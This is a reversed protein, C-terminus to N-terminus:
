FRARATAYFQRGPEPFGEALSYNQDLLNTVGIAASFNETFDYDARINLLAYSGINVYNPKTSNTDAPGDGFAKNCNGHNAAPGSPTAGSSTNTIILTSTCSTIMAVRDTALELSPTLTLKDTAKWALYFFAKHKPLGEMQTLAVSDRINAATGAPLDAAVGVFDLDRDIYTYNGGIRLTRTVEWDASVEAGYYHGDPSVGIISANGNGYFANQISDEIDSYFIASSARLGPFVTDSIGIEYNTSREPAVNPDPAPRADFRTSYREFLTPFRTRSSIDAHATGTRSYRYIAAAQWNWADVEPTVPNSVITGGSLSEARLVENTDYSVGAVFDLNHTAHFTNEIAFSWTEESSTETPAKQSSPPSVTYNYNIDWEKHVDRRYHIAGKLTNMPILSTGMEVFGGVSDDSYPSDTPLNACTPNTCFSVTNDFTNYYANTKIYSKEGLQTKSLWSLSSIDWAPWKWYRPNGSFYGQVIQRDVHLPANKEGAQKTYNISYEDTANPTIGAKVNIRWDSFDSRDRNGGDEYPFGPDHGNIGTVSYPSPRFDSSMDFHDQDVITGSVQAYYGKQRTGTYGYASWQGMSGLDGDFVSGVRADLEYEKTPKRSVMNIAGGMGGPGNLVSVYGKAVQVEALDPTLFRNMDIRNDAPLYVRVGDMSLPVQFRNFGRVFIDGENRSGSSNISPAGTSLWTVGPLINVAQGLANKNFTYMAENTVAGGGIMDLQGLTFPAVAPGEVVVTGALDTAGPEAPAGTSAPTVQRKAKTRRPPESPAQVVVPPLPTAEDATVDGGPTATSADQALASSAAVCLGAATVAAFVCKSM